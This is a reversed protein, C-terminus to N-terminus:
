VLLACVLLMWMLQLQKKGVLAVVVFGVLSSVRLHEGQGGMAM